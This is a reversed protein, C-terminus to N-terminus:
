RSLIPATPLSHEDQASVLWARGDVVQCVKVTAEFEGTLEDWVMAASIEGTEVRPQRRVVAVDGDMDDGQEGPLTGHRSGCNRLRVAARLEGSPPGVGVAALTSRM